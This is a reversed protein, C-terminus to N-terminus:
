PRKVLKGQRHIDQMWRSIVNMRVQNEDTENEVLPFTLRHHIRNQAGIKAELVANEIAVPSFRKMAQKQLQRGELGMDRLCVQIYQQHQTKAENPVQANRVYRPVGVLAGIAHLQDMRARIERRRAGYLADGFQRSNRYDVLTEAAREAEAEIEIPNDLIARAAPTPPQGDLGLEVMREAIVRAHEDLIHRPVEPTAVPTRKRSSSRRAAM